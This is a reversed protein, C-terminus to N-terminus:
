NNADGYKERIIDIVKANKHPDYMISMLEDPTIKRLLKAYDLAENETRVSAFFTHIHKGEKCPSCVVNGKIDYGVEWYDRPYDKEIRHYGYSTNQAHYNNANNFKEFNERIVRVFESETVFQPTLLIPREPERIDITYEVIKGAVDLGTRKRFAEIAKINPIVWVGLEADITAGFMGAYMPNEIDECPNTDNISYNPEGTYMNVGVTAILVSAGAIAGQCINGKVDTFKGEFDDSIFCRDYSNYYKEM